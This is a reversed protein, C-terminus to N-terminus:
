KAGSVWAHDIRLAHIGRTVGSYMVSARYGPLPACELLNWEEISPTAIVVGAETRSPQLDLERLELKCSAFGFGVRSLAHALGHGIAKLLAEKATWLRYFADEHETIPMAALAAAEHATFFRRTLELVHPRPKLSEIDVGICDGRMFGLLLADGSHSASFRLESLPSALVPRGNERRQMNVSHPDIQLYRAICVRLADTSREGRRHPLLWLHLGDDALPPWADRVPDFAAFVPAPM